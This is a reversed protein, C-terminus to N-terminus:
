APPDGNWRPLGHSLDIQPAQKMFSGDSVARSLSLLEALLEQFGDAGQIAPGLADHKVQVVLHQTPTWLLKWPLHDEVHVAATASNARCLMSEANKLGLHQELQVVLRGHLATRAVVFCPRDRQQSRGQTM